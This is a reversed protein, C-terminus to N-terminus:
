PSGAPITRILKKDNSFEDDTASEHHVWKYARPPSFLPCWACIAGFERKVPLQHGYM